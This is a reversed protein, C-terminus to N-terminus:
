LFPLSFVNYVSPELGVLRQDYQVQGQFLLLWASLAPAWAASPSQPDEQAESVASADTQIM